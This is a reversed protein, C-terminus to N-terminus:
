IAISNYNIWRCTVIFLRLFNVFKETFHNATLAWVFLVIHQTYVSFRLIWWISSTMWPVFNCVVVIVIVIVVTGCCAERRISVTQYQKGIRMLLMLGLSGKHFNRCSKKYSITYPIGRLIRILIDQTKYASVQRHSYDVWDVSDLPQYFCCVWHQRLMSTTEAIIILLPSHQKTMDIALQSTDLTLYWTNYKVCTVM